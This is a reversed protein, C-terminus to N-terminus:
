LKPTKLKKVLPRDIKGMSTYTYGKGDGGMIIYDTYFTENDLIENVEELSHCIYDPEEKYPIFATRLFINYTM